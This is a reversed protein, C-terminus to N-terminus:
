NIERFHASCIPNSETGEDIFIVTNQWITIANSTFHFNEVFPLLSVKNQPKAFLSM